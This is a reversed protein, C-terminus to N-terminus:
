RVPGSAVPSYCYASENGSENGSEYVSENGSENGSEYVSENDSENDSGKNIM